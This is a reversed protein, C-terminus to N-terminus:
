RNISRVGENDQKKTVKKLRRSWVQWQHLRGKFVESWPPRTSWPSVYRGRKNTFIRRPWVVVQRTHWWPVGSRAARADPKVRWSTFVRTTRWLRRLMISRLFFINHSNLHSFVLVSLLLLFFANFNRSARAVPAGQLVTYMPRLCLTKFMCSQNHWVGQKIKFIQFRIWEKEVKPIPIIKLSTTRMVM